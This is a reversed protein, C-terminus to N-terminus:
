LDLERSFNVRKALLEDFESPLPEVKNLEAFNNAIRALQSLKQDTNSNSAEEENFILNVVKGKPIDVRELPFLATGDYYAKVM